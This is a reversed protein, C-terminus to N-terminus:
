ARGEAPNDRLRPDIATAALDVLLNALAVIVVTVLVAGQVVPFNRAAIAEYLLRGLGPRAFVVEVFVASGLVRGIALGLLAVMPPAAEKLAYKYVVLREPLGFARITRIHPAAITELMAARALRAVYGTWGVAIALAPLILRKAEDALAGSRSAGLVPLWDLWISFVLLLAIAVVFGPVAIFAVSLAALAHDIWSGRHTAAYIGLPLGAAASLALSAAALALTYPLAERILSSVPRGSVVDAGLDGALAARMFRWLRVHPPQDLGMQAIFRQSLEPTAQPGLLVRAPEGPVLATLAVLLAMAGLVVLAATLARGALRRLPGGAARTLSL